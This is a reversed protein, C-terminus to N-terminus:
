LSRFASLENKDPDSIADIKLERLVEKFNGISKNNSFIYAKGADAVDKNKLWPKDRKDYYKSFGLIIKDNKGIIKEIIDKSYLDEQKPFTAICPYPKAIIIDNIIGRCLENKSKQLYQLLEGDTMALVSLAEEKKKETSLSNIHLTVAHNLMAGFSINRLNGFCYEHLQDRIFLLTQIQGIAEKSPKEKPEFDGQECTYHLGHLLVYPKFTHGLGTFFSDRRYHDIRDLDYTGSVLEHMVNLIFRNQNSFSKDDLYKSYNGSILFCIIDKNYNSNGGLIDSVMIQSINEYRKKFVDFIAGDGKILQCAAEEHTVFDEKLASHLGVNNELTHSFPFHALDHLFLAVIFEEVWSNSKLVDLLTRTETINSTKITLTVSNLAISGLHVTGLAHSFRSHSGSPFVLPIFGAQNLWHLRAVEPCDILPLITKQLAVNGAGARFMECIDGSGYIDGFLLVEYLPDYFHVSKKSM